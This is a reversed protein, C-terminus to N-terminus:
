PSAGIMKMMKPTSEKSSFRQYRARTIMLFQYNQMKRIRRKQSKKM